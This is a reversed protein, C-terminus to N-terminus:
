KYIHKHRPLFRHSGEAAHWLVSSPMRLVLLTLSINAQCLTLVSWDLSNVNCETKLYSRSMSAGELDEAAAKWQSIHLFSNDLSIWQRAESLHQLNYRGNKIYNATQQWFDYIWYARLSHVPSFTPRVNAWIQATDYLSVASGLQREVFDPHVMSLSM